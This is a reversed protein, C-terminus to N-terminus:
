LTKVERCESIEFQLEIKQGIPFDIEDKSVTM